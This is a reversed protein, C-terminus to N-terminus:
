SYTLHRPLWQSCAPGSLQTSAYCGGRYIMTALADTVNVLGGRVEHASYTARLKNVKWCTMLPKLHHM